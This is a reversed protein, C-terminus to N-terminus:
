RRSGEAGVAHADGVDIGHLVVQEELAEEVRLPHRHGVDVDVEAEAIALPDDVVDGPLVAAGVHGLDDGEPRHRGPGHDAVHAAAELHRVGVHVADRLEDRLLGSDLDRDVLREGLHRGQTLRVVRLRAHALQDVDRAPELPEHAVRGRVGGPDHDRRPRDHLERREIAARVLFDRGLERLVVDFRDAEQLHVEEPELRERQDVVRRRRDLLLAPRPGVEIVQREVVGQHVLEEGPRARRADELEFRAPHAVDQPPELGLAELVQDREVRQVARPRDAATQDVVEHLPAVALHLHLIRVRESSM